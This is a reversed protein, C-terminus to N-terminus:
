PALFKERIMFPTSCQNYYTTRIASKRFYDGIAEYFAYARRIKAIPSWFLHGKGFWQIKVSKPSM